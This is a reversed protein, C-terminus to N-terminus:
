TLSAKKEGRGGGVESENAVWGPAKKERPSGGCGMQFRRTGGELDPGLTNKLRPTVRLHFYNGGLRSCRGWESITMRKGRRFVTRAKKTVIPAMGSVM